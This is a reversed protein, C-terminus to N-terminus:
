TPLNCSVDSLVPERTAAEPPLSLKSSFWIIIPTTVLEMSNVVAMQSIYTTLSEEETHPALINNKCLKMRIFIQKLTALKYCSQRSIQCLYLANFTLNM